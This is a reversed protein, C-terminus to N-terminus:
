ISQSYYISTRFGSLFRKSSNPIYPVMNWYHVAATAPMNSFQDILQFRGLSYKHGYVEALVEGRDWGDLRM